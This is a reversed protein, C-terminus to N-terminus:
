TIEDIDILEYQLNGLKLSAAHNLTLLGNRAEIRQRLSASRRADAAYILDVCAKDLAVPDLSSLIGIDALEPPAPRSVCDCDVSLNNMVNIYLINDEVSNMISGTADAMAELFANQSGGGISTMSRGGSHIWCKGSSSAIGISINKIAGGFGGMQHGKFHSLVILSQYNAFNSGVFNEKIIKGNAFPLSIHGNEDMIDVPAIDTFGHEAAVQRHRATTARPGGYATNCEVLTGDVSQVLDKILAPSLFYHGGPEGTSIKVAVKEPLTRELAQYVSMLGLPNIEKTIFVKSKESSDDENPDETDTSNCAGIKGAVVALTAAGVTNLFKRREM